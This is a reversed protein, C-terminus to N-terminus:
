RRTATYHHSTVLRGVGVDTNTVFVNYTNATTGRIVGANMTATISSGVLKLDRAEGNACRVVLLDADCATADIVLSNLSARGTYNCSLGTGASILRATLDTDNQLVSMSVPESSGVTLTAGVCEGGAVTALTLAGDWLGGLQAVFPSPGATTPATQETTCGAAFLSAALLAARKLEMGKM